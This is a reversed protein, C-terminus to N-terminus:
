RGYYRSRRELSLRFLGVSKMFTEFARLSRLSPLPGRLRYEVSYLRAGGLEEMDCMVREREVKLRIWVSYTALIHEAQASRM